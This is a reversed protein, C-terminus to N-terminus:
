IGYYARMAAIERDFINITPLLPTGGAQSVLWYAILAVM